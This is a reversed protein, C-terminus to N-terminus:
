GAGTVIDPPVGDVGSPVSTADMPTTAQEGGGSAVNNGSLSEGTDPLAAATLPSVIRAEKFAIAVNLSEGDPPGWNRSLSTIIARAMSGLPTVVMVPQKAEGIAVLQNFRRLDLRIFSGASFPLTVGVGLPAPPPPVPNPVLPLSSVLRGTVNLTRLRRHVHSTIDGFGVVAHETVTYEHTEQEGDVVDLVVRLPTVSPVMDALPELPVTGTPDLRFVSCKRAGLNGGLPSALFTM